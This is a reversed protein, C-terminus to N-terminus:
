IRSFVFTIMSNVARAKTPRMIKPQPISMVPAELVFLWSPL